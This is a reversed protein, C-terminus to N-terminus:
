KISSSGCSNQKVIFRTIDATLPASLVQIACKLEPRDIARIHPVISSCLMRAIEELRRDQGFRIRTFDNTDLEVGTTKTPDKSVVRHVDEM